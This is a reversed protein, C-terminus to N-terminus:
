SLVPGLDSSSPAIGQLEQDGTGLTGQAAVLRRHQSDSRSCASAASPSPSHQDHFGQFV